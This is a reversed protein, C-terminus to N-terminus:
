SRAGHLAQLERKYLKGTEHRPLQKDFTLTKPTKVPGLRGRVYLLLQEAVQPDAGVGDVLEVVARAEQGLDENPIGIVAADRVSPHELLVAEIEQPYINVGGSIITFHRRDTLYLYGDADLYGVDGFTRWGHANTADATKKPDRWYEFTHGGSFYIDGPQGAPLTEGDPGLIHVSDQAPRGVSGPHALWESSTIRTSGIGESGSYYEDLVPGWWEIMRHKIHVPCPAAGHIAFRQSRVDASARVSKPLQLLRHFMTPVWLGHTCRYCAITELAARADFRDPVVVTAGAHIAATVYRHPASHYLPSPSYVVAAPSLEYARQVETNVPNPDDFAGTQLPKRIGKPRGTTGSSYLMERGPSASAPVTAPQSKLFSLWDGALGQALDIGFLRPTLGKLTLPDELAFCGGSVVVARAQSDDVIFKLDAASLKTSLLAYYLGCRQAGLVTVFWEPRNTISIAVCDGRQLGLATFANAARNVETELESYSLTRGSSPFILAPHTPQSSAFHSLHSM